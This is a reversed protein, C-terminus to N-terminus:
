FYIRLLKINVIPKDTGTVTFYPQQLRIEYSVHGPIGPDDKIRYPMSFYVSVFRMPARLGRRLDNLSFVNRDKRAQSYVPGQWFFLFQKVSECFRCPELHLVLLPLTQGPL